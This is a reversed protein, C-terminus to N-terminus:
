ISTTDTMTKKIWITWMDNSESPTIDKLEFQTSITGGMKSQGALIDRLAQQSLPKKLVNSPLTIQYMAVSKGKGLKKMWGLKKIFERVPTEPKELLNPIWKKVDQEIADISYADYTDTDHGEEKIPTPQPPMMPQSQAADPNMKPTPPKQLKPDGGKQPSPQGTAPGLIQIKYGAKLFYEKPKPTTNDQAVVVYNDYYDDLSIRAVDFEYTKVYQKYGRSAQARIRKGTLQQGITQEFREKIQADAGDITRRFNSFDKGLDYYQGQMDQQEVIRKLSIM